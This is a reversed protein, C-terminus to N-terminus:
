EAASTKAAKTAFEARIASSHEGLAPVPGLGPTVGDFIAGPALMRVTGVSTGVDVYRNQPHHKLDELTSIRGYAIRAAELRAVIEDRPAAGFADAIIADLAARNTVRQRVTAFRADTALDPRRLVETCLRHWEPENQISFLVRKGDRCAYDGYPAITPHHLGMRAPEYGGYVYQLYPVNMWDSLVHYLSVAVHRGKGTRERAYLAQLIGQQATNGAAIDCVSIGVRAMGAENGTISALGSEAQVLLDYAKLDRYPGEDGYGSISCTILRPNARRLAEPAFGLRDIVGPALNQIFVDARAVMEALLAQDGSAKLDLCVSEKGRNLWLFYGSEGRVYEDYRRGFDGEPREVKIVRAGSDALRSSAYPAAVAQEVSVVLIGELDRNATM